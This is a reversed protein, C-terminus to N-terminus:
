FLPFFPFFPPLEMVGCECNLDPQERTFLRLYYEETTEDYEWASENGFFSRWNNPPHRLGQGDFRPPQWHYWSRKANQPCKRSELFWEHQDSTHNVVLDMLLRIGAKDLERKLEHWDEMTGYDPNIARYDAVDYGMDNQPSKYIPSLWVVTVGLEQLYPVKTIIGRLDGIGDGNSDCFSHPYIQYVVATKWWAASQGNIITTSM